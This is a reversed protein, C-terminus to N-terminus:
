KAAKSFKKIKSAAKKFQGSRENRLNRESDSVENAENAGCVVGVTEKLKSIRKFVLKFLNILSCVKQNLLLWGCTQKLKSIRKFVLKCSNILSYIKKRFKWCGVASLKSHTFGM